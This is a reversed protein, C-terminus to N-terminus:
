DLTWVPIRGPTYPAGIEELEQEIAPLSTEYITRLEELIPPFEESLIAFQDRQSQTIGSTSRWHVWVM